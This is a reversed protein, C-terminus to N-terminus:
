DVDKIEIEDPGFHYTMPNGTKTYLGGLEVLLSAEPDSGDFSQWLAEACEDVWLDGDKHNEAIWSKLNEFGTENIDAFRTM